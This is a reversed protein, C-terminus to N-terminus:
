RSSVPTAIVGHNRALVYAAYALDAGGDKVETANAVANRLYDLATSRHLTHGANM